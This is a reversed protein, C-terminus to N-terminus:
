GIGRLIIPPICFLDKTIAINVAEGLKLHRPNLAIGVRAEKLVRGDSLNGSVAV